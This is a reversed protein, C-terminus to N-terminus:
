MLAPIAPASRASQAASGPVGDFSIADSHRLSVFSRASQSRPEDPRRERVGGGSFEQSRLSEAASSQQYFPFAVQLGSMHKEELHSTGQGLEGRLLLLISAQLLRVCRKHWDAGLVSRM